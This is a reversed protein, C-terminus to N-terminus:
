LIVEVYSQGPKCHHGCFGNFKSKYNCRKGNKKIAKCIDCYFIEDDDYKEWRKKGKLQKKKM